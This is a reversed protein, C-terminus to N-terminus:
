GNNLWDRWRIHMFEHPYRLPLGPNGVVGPFVTSSRRLGATHRADIEQVRRRAAEIDFAEIDALLAAAEADLADSRREGM